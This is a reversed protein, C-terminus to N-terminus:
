QSNDFINAKESRIEVAIVAKVPAASHSISNTKQLVTLSIYAEPQLRARGAPSPKSILHDAFSKLKKSLHYSNHHDNAADRDDDDQPVRLLGGRLSPQIRVAGGLRIISPPAASFGSLATGRYGDTV